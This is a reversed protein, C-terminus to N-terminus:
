RNQYPTGEPVSTWYGWLKGPANWNGGGPIDRWVLTRGPTSPRWLRPVIWAAALTLLIVAPRNV